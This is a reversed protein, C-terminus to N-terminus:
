HRGTARTTLAVPKLSEGRRTNPLPGGATLFVPKAPVDETGDNREGVRARDVYGEAQAADSRDFIAGGDVDVEIEFHDRLDVLDHTLEIEIQRTDRDHRM